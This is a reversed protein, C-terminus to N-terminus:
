VVTRALRLSTSWLVLAASLGVVARVVAVAAGTGALVAGLAGVVLLALGTWLYLPVALARALPLFHLGVVVVVAPAIFEPVGLRALGFVAVLILVAQGVNVLLFTRTPDGPRDPRPRVRAPDPHAHWRLATRFVLAALVLVVVGGLVQLAAGPAVGIVGSLAWGTGFVTMVAIGQM